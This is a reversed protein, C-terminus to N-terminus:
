VKTFTFYAPAGLVGQDSHQRVSMTIATGTTVSGFPLGTQGVGLATAPWIANPETSGFPTALNFSYQWILNGVSDTASITYGETSEDLPVDTNDVWQNNVRARRFWFMDVSASAGTGVEFCKFLVPSLPQVRANTPTDTVTQSQSSSANLTQPLFYLPQGLDTLNIGVSGLGGQSLCVFREGSVHTLMAAETGQLGRLLGNLKYTTGSVLTANRFGVIENGILAVNENNLFNAYTISNLAAGPDYLTVTVTNLEDPQNGGSFAGLAASTYGMAAASAISTSATFTSDDRSMEIAAGPWSASYGCAAVYLGQSTDTNTLPPLDLVYLITPGAYGVRQPSYGLPPAPQVPTVAGFAPYLQPVESACSWKLIGTGDYQVSNIMVTRVKGTADTVGVVDTPELYLYTLDTEFVLTERRAWTSWLIAQACSFANADQMAAACKVTTKYNSTTQTRYAAQTVFNYDNNAGYYTLSLRQPLDVEQLRSIKLPNLNGENGESTAGLASWPITVAPNAGRRVFKLQGDTDSVDTFYVQLLPALADRGSSNDGVLYGVLQDTCNTATYQSSSLGARSCVDNIIDEVTIPPLQNWNPTIGYFTPGFAKDSFYQVANQYFFTNVNGSTDSPVGTDICTGNGLSFMKMNNNDAGTLALNTIYVQNDNLAYGVAVLPAVLGVAYEGVMNLNYDFVLMHGYHTSNSNQTAAYLYDNSLAILTFSQIGGPGPPDSPFPTVENYTEENFDYSYISNTGQGGATFVKSGDPSIIGQTTSLTLGLSDVDLTQVLYTPPVPIPVGGPSETFLPGQYTPDYLNGVVDMVRGKGSLDCFRFLLDGSFPFSSALPGSTTIGYPTATIPMWGFDPTGTAIGQTWGLGGGASLTTLYSTPSVILGPDPTFTFNGTDSYTPESDVIVEFSLNPITNGYNTLDLSQFVVYAMGRHAPVNGAGETAEMTPDPLQTESGNYFTFNTVMNASGSLQEFDAPNSVDYILTGNAWIRRLGVVPGECLGVAFSIQYNNTDYTPELFGKGGERHEQTHVTPPAAWIVNGTVRMVGYAWQIPEGYASNQIRLDPMNVTKHQPFLLGGIIGGIMGGVEAGMPGGFYGGVAAGVGTLIMQGM